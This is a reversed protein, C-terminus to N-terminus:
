NTSNENRPLQQWTWLPFYSIRYWSQKEEAVTIHDKFSDTTSEVNTYDVIAVPFPMTHQVVVTFLCFFPKFGWPIRFSM